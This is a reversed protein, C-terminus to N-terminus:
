VTAPERAQQGIGLSSGVQQLQDGIRNTVGKVAAPVSIPGIVDRVSRNILSEGILGLGITGLVCAQPASKTLGYGFLLVGGSGVLFRTAPAWRNQLLEIREGPRQRGGQLAAINGPEKRIDLSQRVGKVGSIKSVCKLLCDVERALIPGSLNVQGNDCRVEIARPHSIVRGLKSRVRQELVRDSVEGGTLLSRAGAVLGCARHSLDRAVVRAADDSRSILSNAQDRILSRRRRGQQPDLLYMLGAGVGIGSILALGRNM